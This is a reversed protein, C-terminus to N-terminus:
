DVQRRSIKKRVKARSRRATANRQHKNPRAPLDDTRKKPTDLKSLRGEFARLAEEFVQAKLLTNDPKGGVARSQKHALGRWKDFLKRARSAKRKLESPQLLALEPRRSARVLEAESETCISRVRSAPVAM